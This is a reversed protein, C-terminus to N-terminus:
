LGLRSIEGCFPWDEARTVLRQRVPNNWVYSWKTEYSEDSRLLHDFFERQWLPYPFGLPRLQRTVLSRFAQIFKSLDADRQVPSAFCHIHDPMVVYRGIKWEPLRSWAARIAKHVDDNALCPQRNATCCTIFYIVTKDHSLWVPVRRLHKRDV